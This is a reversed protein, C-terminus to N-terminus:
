ISEFFIRGDNQYRALIQRKLETFLEQRSKTYNKNEDLISIIAGLNHYFPNSKLEMNHYVEVNENYFVIKMNKQKNLKKLLQVNKEFNLDFINLYTNIPESDLRIAIAMAWTEEINFFGYKVEINHQNKM